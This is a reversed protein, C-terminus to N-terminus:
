SFMLLKDMYIRINYYKLIESKEVFKQEWLKNTSSNQLLNCYIVHELKIHHTYFKSSNNFSKYIRM